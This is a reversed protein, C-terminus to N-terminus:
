MKFYASFNASRGFGFNKSLNGIMDITGLAFYMKETPWYNLNLGWRFGAFGGYSLHTSAAFKSIPQYYAGAFLYPRYDPTLVGKFGFIVQLKNPSYRDALKEVVLELPLVDTYRGIEQIFGLTDEFNFTENLTDDDIFNRIDFGTYTTTSDVYYSHTTKNWFIAGLNSIRLNVLQRNGDKSMFMFNYNLDISFGNGQFAWYPSFDNTAFGQAQLALQVTDGDAHSILSSNASHFNVAKSGSIFSVQVSSLTRQEYFGVSFKQYHQYQLHSFSFDMTDGLYDSNGYMATTYLDSAINSSIFHNDSFSLKLGYREKGLPNVDPSYSDIRQEFEGGVSNLSKLRDHNDDKIDQTIEGGFLFKDMLANNFRNSGYHNFSSIKLISQDNITDEFVVSLDQANTSVSIICALLYLIYYNKIM